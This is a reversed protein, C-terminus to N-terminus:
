AGARAAAAGIQALLSELASADTDSAVNVRTTQGNLNINITRGSGSSSSAAPTAAASGAAATGTTGGGGGRVTGSSTGNGGGLGGAGAGTGPNVGPSQLSDVIQQLTNVWQQADQVAAFSSFQSSGTLYASQKAASLAALASALDDPTLTGAQYKERLM